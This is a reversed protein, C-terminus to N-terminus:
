CTLNLRYRIFRYRILHRECNQGLQNYKSVNAYFESLEDFRHPSIENSRANRPLSSPLRTLVSSFTFSKRLCYQRINYRFVRWAQRTVVKSKVSVSQVALGTSILKFSLHWGM